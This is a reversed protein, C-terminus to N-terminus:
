PQIIRLIIFFINVSSVYFIKNSAHLNKLANLACIEGNCSTGKFFCISFICVCISQCGQNTVQIETANLVIGRSPFLTKQLLNVLFQCCLNCLQFYWAERIQTYPSKTKGRRGEWSFARLHTMDMTLKAELCM